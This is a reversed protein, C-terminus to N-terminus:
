GEGGWAGYQLDFICCQCVNKVKACVQCLVTKKQRAKPGPVWRFVTYARECAHCASGHPERNMRLYPNDGLCTECLIPFSTDGEWNAPGRQAM